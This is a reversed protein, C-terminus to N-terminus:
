DKLRATDGYLQHGDGPQPTRLIRERYFAASDGSRHLIREDRRTFRVFWGRRKRIGTLMGRVLRNVVESADGRPIRYTKRGPKYTISNSPIDIAYPCAAVNRIPRLVARRKRKGPSEASGQVSPKPAPKGKKPKPVHVGNEEIWDYIDMDLFKGYGPDRSAINELDEFYWKGDDACRRVFKLIAQMQENGYPASKMWDIFKRYRMHSIGEDLSVLEIEGILWWRFRRFLGDPALRRLMEETTM